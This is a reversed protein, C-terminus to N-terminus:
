RRRRLLSLFGVGSLLAAAPEPVVEVIGLDHLAYGQFFVEGGQGEGTEPNPLYRSLVMNLTDDGAIWEASLVSDNGSWQFPSSGEVEVMGDAPNESILQLRYTHGVTLGSIQLESKSASYAIWWVHNMLESFAGDAFTRGRDDASNHHWGTTYPGPGEWQAQFGGNPNIFSDQSIGFTLGSNLTITTQGGAGVHNAEVLTGTNLIEAGTATPSIDLSTVSFNVAANAASQLLTIVALSQIASRIFVRPHPSM